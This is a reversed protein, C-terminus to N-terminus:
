FCMKLLFKSWLISLFAYKKSFSKFFRRLTQPEAESGGNAEPTQEGGFWVGTLRQPSPFGGGSGQM